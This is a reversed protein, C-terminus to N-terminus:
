DISSQKDTCSEPGFYGFCVPAKVQTLVVMEYFIAIIYLASRM